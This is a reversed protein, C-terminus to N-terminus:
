PRLIRTLTTNVTAQDFPEPESPEDEPPYEAPSDDAFAVCVPYDQGPELTIVKQRTIEHVWNAGFDYV